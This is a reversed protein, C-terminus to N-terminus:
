RMDSASQSVRDRDVSMSISECIISIRRYVNLYIYVRMNINLFFSCDHVRGSPIKGSMNVYMYTRRELTM